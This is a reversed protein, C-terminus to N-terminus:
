KVKEKVVATLVLKRWESQSLAFIHDTHTGKNYNVLSITTGCPCVIHARTQCHKCLGTTNGGKYDDCTTSGCNRCTEGARFTGTHHAICDPRHAKGTQRCFHARSAATPTHAFMSKM